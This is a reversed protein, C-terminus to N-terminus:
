LLRQAHFALHEAIFSQIFYYGHDYGERLHYEVPQGAQEAAALFLEPKLQKELFTDASGQDIRLSDRRPRRVVLATADHEAWRSRDEGLYGAFAKQGWPVQMPAVIPAFASVSLYRDPHRLGLTLAGHGGMSHGMVGQRAPEAPFHAAILEPLEATIWSYTRYHAAWPAVTADVYFGAALGFDWALDDGPLRLRPSTDPAVLMLGHQAAFRQAGAKTAFTEETCTLGALYWLVPVRGAQAQPPRYVSFRMETGCTRSEHAYFGQTGGHCAHEGLTRLTM